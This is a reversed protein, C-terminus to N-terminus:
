GEGVPVGAVDPWVGLQEGTEEDALLVRVDPLNGYEGIWAALKRRATAERGWWGHQVPQGASTLLLHYRGPSPTRTM